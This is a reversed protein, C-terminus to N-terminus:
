EKKMCNEHNTFNKSPAAGVTGHHEVYMAKVQAVTMDEHKALKQGFNFTGYANGNQSNEEMAFGNGAGVGLVVVVATIAAVVMKKM